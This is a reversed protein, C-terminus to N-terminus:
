PRPEPDVLVAADAAHMDTLPGESVRGYAGAVRGDVVYVGLCAYFPGRPGGLSRAAFRRQAIWCAPHRRVDREIRKWEAAPTAGRLGVGEGVRGLVPKLVWEPDDPWRVERPDRTEPLLAKWAPMPTRLESWVLPLRKSQSLLASGPNAAPTLAGHFHRRWDCRRPLNPLWEAPFFRLLAQLEGGGDGLVFARGDRWELQAPSLLAPRGGRAELERGLYRMVQHDDAYATAHLLGVHAGPGTAQRVADALRGAPDGAPASGPFHEGMLRAFGSAENWGGPVDSNVESLRWGDDVPHFDFRMFRAIGPSAGAAGARTLARRLVWPLGLRRQLDPRSLLESEAALTEAALTEAQRALAEWAARAVVLPFDALVATDGVQPDWKCAEFIAHRQLLRFEGPPLAPGARLAPAGTM